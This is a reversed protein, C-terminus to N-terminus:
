RDKGFATVLRNYAAEPLGYSGGACARLGPRDRVTIRGRTARILNQGELIHLADTVSARRIGLMIGVQEHTLEIDDGPLRDHNMLLWRCLRREVPDVLNSAATRGLQIVFSQVFRMLLQHVAPSALVADLLDRAPLRWATAPGVAITVECPSATGGLLSHWEVLGEYGVMGIGTRLGQPSVDSYSAVGSELFCITDIEGGVQAIIQGRELEMREAHAAIRTRDPGSLQLLLLNRSTAPSSAM